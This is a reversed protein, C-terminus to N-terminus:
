SYHVESTSVSTIYSHLHSNCCDITQVLHTNLNIIPMQM